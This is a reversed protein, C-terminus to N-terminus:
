KSKEMLVAEAEMRFSQLEEMQLPALKASEQWRVADDFDSKAKATNGLRHRCMALFYLEAATAQGNLLKVARELTSEAEQYRGLRYYTVGLTHVCSRQRPADKEVKEILPLALEANRREKSRGVLRWAINNLTPLNVQAGDKICTGYDAAAGPDDALAVRCDARLRRVLLDDPQLELLRTFDDCAERPRRQQMHFRGRLYLAGRHDPKFALSANLEPLVETVKKRLLGLRGRQFYAEADFPNLVLRLALSQLESEMMADVNRTLEAGVATVHLPEMKQAAPAPPYDLGEWDLDLEALQRRILRLDWVHTAKADDSIALLRTGDPTFVLSYAPDQNPDELRVKEIGTAPDLLRIAGQGTEVALFRSDPTFESGMGPWEFSAVEEWTGVRLMKGGLDGRVALWNGDPSFRAIAFPGVKLDKIFRGNGAQWLKVVGLSGFTGSAVFRGDPSIAVSRVDPQPQLPIPRELHDRHLVMSGTGRAQAIVQGDKSTSLAVWAGSTLYAPPGFQYETAAGGPHRIPWHLLGGTGNTLLSDASAFKLHMFYPLHIMGVENGTELDWFRIGDTMTLAFLRGDPSVDGIWYSLDSAANSQRVLTRYERGTVVQILRANNGEAIVLRGEPSFRFTSSGGQHLVQQGTRWNWFRLRGEFGQSLLLDGDPTFAISVGGNRCGEMVSVRQMRKVDWVHIHNSVCVTALFEGQPHWALYEVVVPKGVKNTEGLVRLVKGTKADLFQITSRTAVALRDGTPDFSMPGIPSSSLKAVLRPAEQPALLNYELISEPDVSGILRRSDPHFIEYGKSVQDLVVTGESNLDWVRFRGVGHALLFRGDPSFRLWFEGPFYSLRLIEGDDELRRVSVQGKLLSARAYRDHRDDWDWSTGGEPFAKWVRLSRWDPLALSAIALTRLEDLHKSPMDRERAIRVAERIADLTAFRQGAQRSFRSARAQAVYSEFLKETKAEEEKHARDEAARATDRERQLWFAAVTSAVAFGALLVFLALTLAAVVPNRRCWRRFREVVAVRRAKIPRNDLFRQLDEALDAASAYRAAPERAMAKLVITELDRPVSPAFPRLPPLTDSNIEGILKARDISGFAPRLALLEYLTVGLAHIDSRADSKGEFREPAMYRITGVIDGAQTLNDADEAKALGFDTIWLTGQDDLLLNAPKIDRHLVGQAHAYALAQAAQVGLLAVRRHYRGEPQDSLDSRGSAPPAAVAPGPVIAPEAEAFHGAILSQAVSVAARRHSNAQTPDPNLGRLRKVEEIVVDLPQGQIFQMAYYCCGNEEGVGFVPVINTHHLRAATRAERRFRELFIPRQAVEAPLVKLAVHRGLSEQEAEYVVGMGGRGIERLIRFDGLRELSVGDLSEMGRLGSAVTMVGTLDNGAPKLQEMMAVAPFLDRIDGALEPYRAVYEDENFKEGRRWRERWEEALREIPDRDTTAM